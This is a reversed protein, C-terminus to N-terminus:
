LEQEPEYAMEAAEEEDKQIEPAIVNDIKGIVEKIADEQSGTVFTNESSLYNSLHSRIITLERESFLM